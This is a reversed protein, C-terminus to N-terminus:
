NQVQIKEQIYNIIDVIKALKNKKDANSPRHITILAFSGKELNFKNYYDLNKAKDLNLLLTNIMINGVFFIKKPKIGERLLNIKASEETIFLFDSIQDTLLRNIEEPMRKDFSRFGSEIHAVEIFLKKAVIACAITSNIDGDVIILFPRDRLIVNEFEIIIKVTQVVHSGSGVNLYFDPEPIGLNDYFNKSM